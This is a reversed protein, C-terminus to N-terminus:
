TGGGFSGVAGRHFLAGSGCAGSFSDIGPVPM